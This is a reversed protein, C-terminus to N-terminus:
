DGAPEEFVTSGCGDCTVPAERYARGCDECQIRPPAMALGGADHGTSPEPDSEGGLVVEGDRVARLLRRREDGRGTRSM